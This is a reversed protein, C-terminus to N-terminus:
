TWSLAKSAPVFGSDASAIEAVGLDQGYGIERGILSSARWHRALALWDPRSSQVEFSTGESQVKTLTESSSMAARAARLTLAEAAAWHLDYTATYGPQGPWVGNLDPVVSANLAAQLDENSLTPQTAPDVLKSLDEIASM